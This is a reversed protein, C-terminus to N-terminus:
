GGVALALLVGGVIGVLLGGGGWLLRGPWDLPQAECEPCRVVVPDPVAEPLKALASMCRERLGSYLGQSVELRYANSAAVRYYAPHLLWGGPHLQEGPGIHMPDWLPPEEPRKLLSPRALPPLGDPSADFIPRKRASAPASAVPLPSEETPDQPDVGCLLAASEAPTQARAGPALLLIAM